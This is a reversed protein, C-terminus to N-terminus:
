PQATKFGDYFDEECLTKWSSLRNKPINGFGDFGDGLLRKIVNNQINDLTKM